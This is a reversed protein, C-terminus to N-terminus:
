EGEKIKLTKMLGVNNNTIWTIIVNNTQILKVCAHSVVRILTFWRSFSSSSPTCHRAWFCWLQRRRGQVLVLGAVLGAEMVWLDGKPPSLYFCQNWYFHGLGDRHTPCSQKRGLVFMSSWDGCVRSRGSAAEELYLGWVRVNVVQFWMESCRMKMFSHHLKENKQKNQAKVSDNSIIREKM